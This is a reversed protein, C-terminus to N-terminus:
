WKLELVSMLFFQLILRKFLSPNNDKALTTRATVVTM